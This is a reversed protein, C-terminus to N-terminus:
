SCCHLSLWGSVPLLYSIAGQCVKGPKCNRGRVIRWWRSSKLPWCRWAPIISVFHWSYALLYHQILRGYGARYNSPLCDNRISYQDESTLNYLNDIAGYNHKQQRTQASWLHESRRWSGVHVTRLPLMIRQHIVPFFKGAYPINNAFRPYVSFTMILVSRNWWILLERVEDQEDVDEFYDLVSSYFRESDTVTDTRSFM